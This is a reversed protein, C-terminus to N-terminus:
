EPSRDQIPRVVWRCGERRASWPSGGPVALRGLDDGEVFSAGLLMYLPRAVDATARESLPDVLVTEGPNDKPYLAALDAAVRTMEAQARAVTVDPRLLGYAENSRGGRGNGPNSIFNMWIPRDLREPGNFGDQMVGVVLVSAGNLTISQGVISPDAGFRSRWDTITQQM